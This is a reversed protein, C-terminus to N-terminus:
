TRNSTETPRAPLEDARLAPAVLRKLGVTLPGVSVGVRDGLVPDTLITVGDLKLLVTTHGLWAAHLGRDPWLKPNPHEPSPTIHPGRGM